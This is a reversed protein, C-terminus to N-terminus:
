FWEVTNPLRDSRGLWAAPATVGALVEDPPFLEVFRGTVQGVEKGAPDFGSRRLADVLM